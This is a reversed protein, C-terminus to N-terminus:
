RNGSRLPTVLSSLPGREGQSAPNPALSSDMEEFPIGAREIEEIKKEDLAYTYHGLYLGSLRQKVILEWAKKDDEDTFKIVKVM